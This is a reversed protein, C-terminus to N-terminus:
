KRSIHANGLLYFRLPWLAAEGAYDVGVRSRTVIEKRSIKLGTDEIFLEKSAGAFLALGDQKKTIHLAECLKAPGNTSRSINEEPALARILVAEPEEKKKSVVNVCYHMGYIFYVYAHGGDLYMSRNRETRRGGFTHAAPDKKGLYAETEVIIGSIRKGRYVRVLRKGLLARALKTTDQQFFKKPLKTM